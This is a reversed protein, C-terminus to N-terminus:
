RMRRGVGGDGKFALCFFCTKSKAQGSHGRTCNLTTNPEGRIRERERKERRKCLLDREPVGVSM